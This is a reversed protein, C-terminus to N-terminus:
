LGMMPSFYHVILPPIEFYLHPVKNKNNHHRLVQVTNLSAACDPPLRYVCLISTRLKYTLKLLNGRPNSYYHFVCM